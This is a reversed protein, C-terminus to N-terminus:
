AATAGRDNLIRFVELQDADDGLAVHTTAHRRIVTARGFNVDLLDHPGRCGAAPCTLRQVSRAVFEMLM